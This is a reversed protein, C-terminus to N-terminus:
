QFSNKKTTEDASGYPMKMHCKWPADQREHCVCIRRAHKWSYYNTVLPGRIGIICVSISSGTQVPNRGHRNQPPNAGSRMGSLRFHGLFHPRLPGTPIRHVFFTSSFRKKKKSGRQIQYIIFVFNLFIINKNNNNHAHTDYLYWIIFHCSIMCIAFVLLIILPTTAWQYKVAM